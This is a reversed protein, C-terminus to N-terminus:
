SLDIEVSLRTFQGREAQATTKDVRLIKGIKTGINNLFNIDFYEIPLNPIRVWSTLVKIPAEDSLINPIWKKITLYNDDLLWPGQTLVYNYYASNTFRSIYFDCGIDTLALEGKINWKKKLRRMLGMYGLRGSFMKIILSDKWPKRLMKKEEKSLQILPCRDDNLIDESIDEVDSIEDEDDDELSVITQSNSEKNSLGKLMDRFSQGNGQQNPTQHPIANMQAHIGEDAEGMNVDEM